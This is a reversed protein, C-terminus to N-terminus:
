PAAACSSMAGSEELRARLWLCGEAQDACARVSFPFASDRVACRALLGPDVDAGPVLVAWGAYLGALRGHAASWWRALLARDGDRGLPPAAALVVFRAGAALRAEAGAILAAPATSDWRLIASGGRETVASCDQRALRAGSDLDAMTAPWPASGGQSPTAQM